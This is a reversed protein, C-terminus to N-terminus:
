AASDPQPQAYPQDLQRELDDLFGGHEDILRQAAAMGAARVGTTDEIILREVYRNFDLRRAAAAAKGAELIQPELRVQTQKKPSSM